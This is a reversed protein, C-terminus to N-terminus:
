NNGKLSTCFAKSNPNAPGRKIRQLNSLLIVSADHVQLQVIQSKKEEKESEGAITALTFM